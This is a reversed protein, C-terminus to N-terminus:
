KKLTPAFRGSSARYREYAAGHVRSLYPEEVLRVQVELTIALIVLAALSVLNPILLVLGLTAFLMATFIPNRVRSFVGATILDTRDSEEVGIRWSAGMAFQAILTLGIGAVVLVAGLVASWAADLADIRPFDMLDAIPGAVLLILAVVFGVSGVKAAPPSERSPRVFGTSGTRRWQLWSRWGFALAFFVVELFLALWTRTM